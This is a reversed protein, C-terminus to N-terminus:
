KEQFDFKIKIRYTKGYLDPDEVSILEMQKKIYDAFAKQGQVDEVEIWGEENVKFTTWVYASESRSTLEAPFQVLQEIATYLEQDSNATASIAPFAFSSTTNMLLAIFIAATLTKLNKM